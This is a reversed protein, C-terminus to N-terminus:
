GGGKRVVYTLSSRLQLSDLLPKVNGAGAWAMLGQRDGKHKRLQRRGAATKRLRARVTAPALPVFAPDPNTIEEVAANRALMGVKHLVTDISGGNGTLADQAAKRLMAKVQPQIKRVAPFLFPRASINQAPSGFEHIRALMANTPGADKRNTRSAPVGILVDSATLTNIREMILAVKDIIKTVGIEPM